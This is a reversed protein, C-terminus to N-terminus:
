GKGAGTATMELGYWPRMAQWCQPHHSPKPQSCPALDLGSGEILQLDLVLLDPDRRRIERIAEAATGSHGVLEVGRIGALERDIRARM